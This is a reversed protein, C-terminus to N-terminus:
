PHLFVFANQQRLDSQLWIVAQISYLPEYQHTLINLVNTATLFFRVIGSYRQRGQAEEKLKEDASLEKNKTCISHKRTHTQAVNVCFVLLSVWFAKLTVFLRMVHQSRLNRQVRLPDHGRWLVALNDNKEWKESLWGATVTNSGRPPEGRLFLGRAGDLLSPCGSEETVSLDPLVHTPRSGKDKEQSAGNFNPFDPTPHSFYNTM